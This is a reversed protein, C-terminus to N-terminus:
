YSRCLEKDSLKDFLPKLKEKIGDANFLIYQISDFSCEGIHQSPGLLDCLMAM